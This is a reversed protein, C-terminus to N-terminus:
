YQLDLKDLDENYGFNKSRFCPSDNLIAANKIQNSYDDDYDINNNPDVMINKTPDKNPFFNPKCNSQESTVGFEINSEFDDSTNFSDIKIKNFLCILIILIAILLLFCKYTFM